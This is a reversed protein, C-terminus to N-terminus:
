AYDEPGIREFNEREAEIVTSAKEPSIWHEPWLDQERVTQGERNRAVLFLKVEQEIAAIEAQEEKDGLWSNELRACEDHCVVHGNEDLRHTTFGFAPFSLIWYRDGNAPPLPVTLWQVGGVVGWIKEAREVAENNTM